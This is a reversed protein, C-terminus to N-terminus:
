ISIEFDKYEDNKCMYINQVMKDLIIKDLIIKDINELLEQLWDYKDKCGQLNSIPCYKL